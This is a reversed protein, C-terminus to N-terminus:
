GGTSCGRIGGSMGMSAATFTSGPRYFGPSQISVRGANPATTAKTGRLDAGPRSPPSQASSPGQTFPPQPVVRAAANYKAIAQEFTCGNCEPCFKWTGAGDATYFYGDIQKTTGAPTYQPAVKVAAKRPHDGDEERVAAGKYGDAWKQLADHIDFPGAEPFPVPAGIDAALGTSAFLILAAFGRM